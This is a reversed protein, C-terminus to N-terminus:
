GDRPGVSRPTKATRLNFNSKVSFEGEGRDLLLISSYKEAIRRMAELGYGHQRLARRETDYEEAEQEEPASNVCGIFLFNEHKDMKLRIYRERRPDMRQCAHLANELLNTLFVSLDEDPIDLKEPVNLSCEVRINQVKAQDLYTGAITNVLMNPSYRVTPLRDLAETVSLVYEMARDADGDRLIGALAAMHHRMEHNAANTAEQATLVREYGELTLRSRERLVEVARSTRVTRRIIDSVVVIATMYSAIDTLFSVIPWCNGACLAVWVGYTLYSRMDGWAQVRDFVYVAAVAATIVGFYLLRKKNRRTQRCWQAAEVCSAAAVALLVALTGLGVSDAVGALGQRVRAFRRIGEYLAWIVVSGCLPWKWWKTMRLALYLYLPAMYLMSVTSLDVHSSLVSYDGARSSSAEYLFLMLFYLSLLLTKGDAHDNHVDLLFMGAMLLALLAYITMVVNYRVSFVVDSAVYADYNTLSPYEPRFAEREEPFYTTMTLEKGVYDAPLSVRVERASEDRVQSLRDWDEQTLRLFGDGSRRTQQFDSHLLEGDLFAEVGDLYGTWELEAFPIDETMTRTIRVAEIGYPATMTYGDDAFVPEYARGHGDVLLEYRWGIPEGGYDALGLSEHDTRSILSFVALICVLVALMLVGGAIYHKRHETM